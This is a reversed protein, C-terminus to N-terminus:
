ALLRKNATLLPIGQNAFDRDDTMLKLKSKKCVERIIQDNFDIRGQAFEDLLRGADMDNFRSETRICHNLVKKMSVSVEHAISRFADSNRFRKFPIDEKNWKWEWRVYSNIFESAVLANIYIRSEAKLIRQFASAYIDRKYNSQEERGLPGFIFFWINTDLFLEDNSTFNYSEVDLIEGAM